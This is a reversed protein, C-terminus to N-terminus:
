GMLSILWGLIGVSFTYAIAPGITLRLVDREAVQNSKQKTAIAALVAIINHLAIMNGAAAGLMHLSLILSISYGELLATEAQFHALLVNSITVSGTIMAGFMGVFPALLPWAIPLHTMQTAAYVPLSPLGAQNFQSYLFLQALFIMAILAALPKKIKQGTDRLASFIDELALRYLWWVSISGLLLFFAPSYFPRLTQNIAISDTTPLSTITLSGLSQLVERFPLQPLRSLVLLSVVLAYPALAKVLTATAIKQTQHASTLHKLNTTATFRWPKKIQLFPMKLLLAFLLGGMVSALLAPFEAGFFHAILTYPLAFSAGAILAHALLDFNSTWKRGFFRSLQSLIFFPAAIALPLSIVTLFHSTQHILLSPTQDSVYPAATALFSELGQTLGILFPTGVAGFPVSITDGILSILIAARVPFGIAVLLPAALMAPTGFGALGEIFGVFFISIVIGHLRQDPSIKILVEKIIAISGVKELLKLLLLASALILGIDLTILLAKVFAGIMSSVPVSWFLHLLLMLAVSASSASLLVSRRLLLLGGFLLIFPILFVLLGTWM